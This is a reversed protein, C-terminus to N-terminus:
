GRMWVFNKYTTKFYSANTAPTTVTVSTGAPLNQYGTPKIQTASTVAYAKWGSTSEFTVSTIGSGEFAGVGVTTVSAPLTISKLATCGSFCFNAIQTLQSGSAFTVTALKTCGRFVGGRNGTLMDGTGGVTNWRNEMMTVSAPITISTISTCYQFAEYKITTLTSPLSISALKSCGSFAQGGVTQLSTAQLNISTLTKISCFANDGITTLQSGSAFTVTELAQCLFFAGGGITTVSASIHVERLKAHNKFANGPITTGGTVHLEVLNALDLAALANAPARLVKVGTCGAFAGKRSVLATNPIELEELTTCGALLNSPVEKRDSTGTIILSKLATYCIEPVYDMHMTAKTLECNALANKGLAAITTPITLTKVVTNGCLAYQYIATIGKGTLDLVSSTGTYGLLYTTSSNPKYLTLGNTTTLTTTFSGSTKSEMGPNAPLSVSLGSQNLVRVLTYCEAFAGAGVRKVSTPIKIEHLAICGAFAGDAVATITSPITLAGTINKKAVLLTKTVSNYLYNSAVAFRTNGSVTISNLKTCSAFIGEAIGLVDSGIALSTISTDACGVIWGGLYFLGNSESLLSCNDFAGAEIVTLTTPFTISTFRDAAAFAGKAIKTVNKGDIQAPIVLDAVAYPGYGTITVTSGEVLYSFTLAPNTSPIVETKITQHCVSCEQARSGHNTNTAAVLTTWTGATHATAPLIESETSHCVSCERQKEGNQTCSATTVTNWAGFSHSVEPLAEVEFQGCEGCERHKTGAAFCTSTADTIWSGYDHAIVPLIAVTTNGCGTCVPTSTGTATCTAPVIQPTGPTHGTATIAKTETYTCNKCKRSEVGDTLCQVPTTVKWDALDHQAAPLARVQLVASCLVCKLGESGAVLCSSEQLKEWVTSKQHELAPITEEKMIGCEACNSVRLGSKGCSAAEVTTWNEFNHAELTQTEIVKCQKCTRYQSGTQACTPAVNVVWEGYAHATKEVKEQAVLVKNCVSCHKGETLGAAECTAPVADDTVETHGKACPDADCSLLLLACGVLVLLLLAISYIKMKKM